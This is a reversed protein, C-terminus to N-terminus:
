YIMDNESYKQADLVIHDYVSIGHTTDKKVVCYENNEDIIDIVKFVTYGTNVCFVGKLKDVAGVIYRRSADGPMAIVDGINFSEKSVYCVTDTKKYIETETFRSVVQRNEDYTECIFGVEKKSGETLYETPITYFESDTVASVPIKLGSKGTSVVELDILRDTAYRIVYKDLTIRGYSNGNNSIIAFKGQTTIGDKKLKITITNKSSLDYEKIQDQSLPIYINWEESTVLKYAPSGSVILEESKLNNRVYSKKDFSSSTIDSEAKNEYGDVSYVVIGGEQANVTRFLNQSGTSEIISEMNNIINENMAQLITSNIDTKMDYVESFNSGDYSTKFNNLTTKITALSSKTLSNEDAKSYQSLIQAVRGTEDVTYLTDGNKVRTGERQYYNINGSYESNYVKESRLAVGTFTANATLTGAEVEYSRVKSKSMYMVIFCIIYILVASMIILATKPKRRYKLVKKNNREAM